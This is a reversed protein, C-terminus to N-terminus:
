RNKLKKMMEKRTANTSKAKPKGIIGGLVSAIITLISVILTLLLNESKIFAGIIIILTFFVGSLLSPIIPSEKNGSVIIGGILASIVGIIKPLAFIYLSPDSVNCLIWSSIVMLALSIICSALAGLIGKVYPSANVTKIMNGGKPM